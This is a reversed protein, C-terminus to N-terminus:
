NSPSIILFISNQTRNPLLNMLDEIYLSSYYKKLIQIENDTWM